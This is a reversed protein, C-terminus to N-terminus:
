SVTESGSVEDQTKNTLKSVVCNSTQLRINEPNTKRNTQKRYHSCYQVLRPDGMMKNQIGHFCSIPAIIFLECVHINIQNSLCFLDQVNRFLNLNMIQDSCRKNKVM